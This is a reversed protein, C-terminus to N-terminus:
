ILTVQCDEERVTQRSMNEGKLEGTVPQLGRSLAHVSSIIALGATVLRGVRRTCRPRITLGHVVSIRVIDYM